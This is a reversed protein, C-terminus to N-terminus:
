PRTGGSNGPEPPSIEIYDGDIVDDRRPAGHGFVVTNAQMRAALGAIVLQRVAPILLLLGLADTFFGPLILLVGALMILAGHALPSAPTRMLQMSGRLDLMIKQGQWRILWVGLFGAGLVIGLAPWLTLWGGIKIFLAIEILPVAVFLAFLWM